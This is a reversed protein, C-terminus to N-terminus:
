NYESKQYKEALKVITGSKHALQELAVKTLPLKPNLDLFEIITKAASLQGNDLLTSIMSVSEMHAYVIQLDQDTIFAVPKGLAIAAMNRQPSVKAMDFIMEITNICAPCTLSSGCKKFNSDLCGCLVGDSDLHGDLHVIGDGDVFMEFESLDLKSLVNNDM